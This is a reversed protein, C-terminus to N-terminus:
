SVDPVVHDDKHSIHAANNTTIPQGIQTLGSQLWGLRLLDLAAPRETPETRLLAYILARAEGSMEAGEPICFAGQRIKRFLGAPTFAYFPYRGLLLVFLLVGLSWVDAARGSYNSRSSDLIEPAVYAPCGQRESLRDDEIDACVTMDDLNDLRILTRQKDAFVFKRLKLDRLLLGASHAFTVLRVVQGYIRKTETETLKQQGQVYGHLSGHSLPTLLHHHGDTSTVLQSNAPLIAARIESLEADSARQGQRWMQETKELREVVRLVHRYKAGELTQAIFLLNTSPQRVLQVDPAAIGASILLARAQAGELIEYHGLLTVKRQPTTSVAPSQTLQTNSIKPASPRYAPSLCSHNDNSPSHLRKLTTRSHTNSATDAILRTVAPRVNTITSSAM